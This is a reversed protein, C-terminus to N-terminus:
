STLKRITENLVIWETLKKTTWIRKLRHIGNHDGVHCDECLPICLYQRHQIIHHAISPGPENCVGCPLEKVRAVWRQEAKNLQNNM